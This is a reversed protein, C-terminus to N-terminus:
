RASNGFTSNTAKKENRGDNEGQSEASAPLFAEGCIFNVRYRFFERVGGPADGPFLGLDLNARLDYIRGAAWAVEGSVLDEDEEIFEIFLSHDLGGEVGYGAAM